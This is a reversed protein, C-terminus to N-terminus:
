HNTHQDILSSLIDEPYRVENLFVEHASRNVPLPLPFFEAHRATDLIHYCHPLNVPISTLISLIKIGSHEFGSHSHLTLFALWSFVSTLTIVAM